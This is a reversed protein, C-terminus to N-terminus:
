SLAGDALAIGDVVRLRCGDASKVAQQVRSKGAFGEFSQVTGVPGCLRSCGGFSPFAPPLVRFTPDDGHAECLDGTAPFPRLDTM